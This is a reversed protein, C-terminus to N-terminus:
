AVSEMREFNISAIIMMVATMGAMVIVLLVLGVELSFLITGLAAGLIGFGIVIGEFFLRAFQKGVAGLINGLFAEVMVEAYLKCAQLCVYVMIILVMQLFPLGMVIGTPLTLLCGDALARIHEMLTAYWLKRFASDPILYTYPKALEKGWKGSYAAFIFTLYAMAGLIVFPAMEGMDGRKGIVALGIGACLCLLTYFGFIFFRNKKYELLQRYFLAKAYSGRYSVTAKGYKKKWGAIAVEGKKGKQRAEEYDEAFKIADEYYEGTCKMRVATLFFFVAAAFYLVSGIINVTTPGMFLLHVLAIFWGVVPVMQIAPSHLYNVVARLGAGERIYVAIGIVVFIGMVAYILIQFLLMQRRNFRENGYCIVMMSAELVNEAVCSILFFLFMKWLPMGFWFVGGVSLVFYTLLGLLVTKVHAYLLVGKPNVPAPFLFHIDSQRFVLGKRKGYSILNAPVLFFTIVTLVVTLASASDIGREAFMVDFTIKFSGFILVFYLVAIVLYVYTVPKHLAKKVRNKLIKRYLFLFTTYDASKVGRNIGEREERKRKEM